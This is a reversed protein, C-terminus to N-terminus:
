LLEYAPNYVILRDGATSRSMRGRVLLRKGPGIGAIRRRGTWMATMSGTGDSLTAELWPSGDRPVIRLFTIEGVVAAEARPVLAAISTCGSRDACFDRLKQTDQVAVSTSLRERLKKLVEGDFCM